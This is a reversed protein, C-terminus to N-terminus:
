DATTPLPHPFLTVGSLIISPQAPQSLPQFKVVSIAVKEPNLFIIGYMALLVAKFCTKCHKKNSLELYERGTETRKRRNSAYHVRGLGKQKAMERRFLGLLTEDTNLEEPDRWKQWSLPCRCLVM